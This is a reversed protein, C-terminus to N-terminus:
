IHGPSDVQIQEVCENLAQQILADLAAKLSVVRPHKDTYQVRLAALQQTYTDIQNQLAERSAREARLQALEVEATSYQMKLTQYVPNQYVPNSELNRPPSVQLPTLTVGYIPAEGELQRRLEDRRMAAVRIREDWAEVLKCNAIRATPDDSPTANGAAPEVSVPQTVPEPAAQPEPQEEPQPEPKTCAALALVAVLGFSRMGIKM